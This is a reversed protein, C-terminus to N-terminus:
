CCIKEGCSGTLNHTITGNGNDALSPPNILYNGDQGYFDENEEPCYPPSDCVQISGEWHWSDCMRYEWDYCFTQGTDPVIVDFAFCSSTFILTLITLIGIYSLRFKKM